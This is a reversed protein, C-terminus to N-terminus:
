KIETGSPRRLADLGDRLDIIAKWAVWMDAVPQGFRHLVRDFSWHRMNALDDHWPARSVFEILASALHNGGIMVAQILPWREAAILLIPKDARRVETARGQAVLENFFHFWRLAEKCAMMGVGTKERLKQVLKADVM